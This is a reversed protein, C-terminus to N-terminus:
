KILPVLENMTLNTVRCIGDIRDISPVGEYSECCLKQIFSASCNSGVALRELSGKGNAKIWERILKKNFVRKTM